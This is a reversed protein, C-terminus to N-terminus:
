TRVNTSSLMAPDDRVVERGSQAEGGGSPCKAFGERGGEVHAACIAPETGSQPGAQAGM